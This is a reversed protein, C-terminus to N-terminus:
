QSGAGAARDLRGLNFSLMHIVAQSLEEESAEVVDSIEGSERLFQLIAALTQGTRAYTWLWYYAASVRLVEDQPTLLMLGDDVFGLSRGTPLLVCDGLWSFANEAAGSALLGAELLEDFAAEPIGSEALFERVEDVSRIGRCFALVEAQQAAVPGLVGSRMFVDSFEVEGDEGAFPLRGLYEGVTVVVNLSM